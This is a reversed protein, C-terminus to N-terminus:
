RFLRAIVRQLFTKQVPAPAPAAVPLLQEVVNLASREAESRLAEVSIEFQREATAMVRRLVLRNESKCAKFLERIEMRIYHMIAARNFTTANKRVVNYIQQKGYYAYFSVVSILLNRGALLLLGDIHRAVYANGIANFLTNVIRILDATPLFMVESDVLFTGDSATQAFRIKNEMASLALVAQEVELILNMGLLADVRACRERAELLIANLEALEDATYSAAPNDLLYRNAHHLAAHVQDRYGELIAVERDTLRRELTQRECRSFLQFAPSFGNLLDHLAAYSGITEAFLFRQRLDEHEPLFQRVRAVIGRPEGGPAAGDSRDDVIRLTHQFLEQTADAKFEIEVREGRGIQALAALDLTRDADFSASPIAAIQAVSSSM